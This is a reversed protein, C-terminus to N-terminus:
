EGLIIPLFVRLFGPTSTPTPTYIDPL